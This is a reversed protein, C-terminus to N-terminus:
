GERCTANYVGDLGDISKDHAIAGKGENLRWYGILGPENVLSTDNQFQNIQELTRMGNWFRVEDIKGEFSFTEINLDPYNGISFNYYYKSIM